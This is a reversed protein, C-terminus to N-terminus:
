PTPYIDPAAHLRARGTARDRLHAIADPGTPVNPVAGKAIANRAAPTMGLATLTALLKVSLDGVTKADTETDIEQALRMAIAIAAADSIEYKSQRLAENFSNAVSVHVPRINEPPIPGRTFTYGQGM